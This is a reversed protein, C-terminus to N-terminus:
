KGAKRLSPLAEVKQLIETIDDETLYGICSDEPTERVELPIQAEYLGEQNGYSGRCRIISVRHFNPFVVIAQVGDMHPHPNFELDQFTM